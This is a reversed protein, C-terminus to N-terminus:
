FYPLFLSVMYGAFAVLLATGGLRSIRPRAWTLPVLLTCFALMIPFDVRIARTDVKLPEVISVVGVVFLVNLINSGLVNGLSINTKEQAASVISAALEPLSTGVAVVTLGIVTPQINMTQAIGTAGEVMMHAGVGLALTGGVVSGVAARSSFEDVEPDLEDRIEQLIPTTTSRREDYLLYGSLGLLLLVLILGDVMGIQGDLACVYFLAMVGLMVPYERRLVSPSVTFPTLLASIGLILGINSINSGVINGLALTSEGEAVAVVNVLFEPMSTGVAVITLGVVAPRIEYELALKSAGDVLRDAGGYLLGIGLTVQVSFILM